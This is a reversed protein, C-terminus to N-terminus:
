DMKEPISLQDVFLIPIVSSPTDVASLPRDADDSQTGVILKCVNETQTTPSSTTVQAPAHGDPGTIVSRCRGVTPIAMVAALLSSRDTMAAHHHPPDKIPLSGTKNIETTARYLTSPQRYNHRLLDTAFRPLNPCVAM